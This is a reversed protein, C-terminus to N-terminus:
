GRLTKVLCVTFLSFTIIAFMGSLGFACMVWREFDANMEFCLVPLAVPIVRLFAGLNGFVFVWFVVKPYTVGKQQVFGPLMRVAMGM